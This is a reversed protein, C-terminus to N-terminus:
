AGFWTSELVVKPMGDVEAVESWGLSSFPMEFFISFWYAGPFDRKPKLFNVLSVLMFFVNFPRPPADIRGASDVHYPEQTAADM